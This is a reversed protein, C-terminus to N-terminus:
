SFERPIVKYTALLQNSKGLSLYPETTNPFKRRLYLLGPSLLDASLAGLDLNLCKQSRVRWTISQWCMRLRCRSHPNPLALLRGSKRLNVRAKELRLSKGRARLVHQITPFADGGNVGNQWRRRRRGRLRRYEVGVWRVECLLM